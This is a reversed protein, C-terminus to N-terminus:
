ANLIVRKLSIIHLQIMSWNLSIKELMLPMVLQVINSKFVISLGRYM